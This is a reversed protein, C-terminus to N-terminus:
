TRLCTMACRTLLWTQASKYTGSSWQRQGNGPQWHNTSGGDRCNSTRQNCESTTSYAEIREYCREYFPKNPRYSLRNM